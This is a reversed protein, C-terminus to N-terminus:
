DDEDEDEDESEELLWDVFEQVQPEFFLKGVKGTTGQSKRLEIWKLLADESILEADYIIQLIM